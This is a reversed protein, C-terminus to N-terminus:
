ESGGGGECLIKDFKATKLISPHFFTFSHMSTVLPGKNAPVPVVIWGLAVVVPVVIAIIVVVVISSLM